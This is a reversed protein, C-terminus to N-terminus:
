TPSAGRFVALSLGVYHSIFAVVTLVHFVEHFGFWRPSPDPRKLGYVLGGVTYLVGGLIVLSVILPGGGELFDPLYVVAVWGMAIYAPVYLWRPAGVWLVRFAVGAVAAAWIVWLLTRGPGPRLLLVAFPTYTGAIILFINSHDIRKLVAATRPSWTGRHYIASTGFLLAATVGFVAVALRTRQDPAAAVLLFGAAVVLPFSGAHIWGRLRPKAAEVAEGVRHAVAEAADEVTDGVRDAARAVRERTHHEHTDHTGDGHEHARQPDAGQADADHQDTSGRALPEEARGEEPDRGGRSKMRAVM